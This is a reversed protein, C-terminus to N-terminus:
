MKFYRNDEETMIKKKRQGLRTWKEPLWLKEEPSMVGASTHQILKYYNFHKLYINVYIGLM